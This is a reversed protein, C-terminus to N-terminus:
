EIINWLKTKLLGPKDSLQHQSSKGKHLNVTALKTKKEEKKRPISTIIKSELKYLNEVNVWKHKDFLRLTQPKLKM